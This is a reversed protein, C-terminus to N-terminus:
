LLTIGRHEGALQEAMWRDGWKQEMRPSYILLWSAFIWLPGLDAELEVTLGAYVHVGVRLGLRWHGAKRGRTFTGRKM